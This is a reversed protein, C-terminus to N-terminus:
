AIIVVDAANAPLTIRIPFVVYHHSPFFLQIWSPLDHIFDNNVFFFAYATRQTNVVARITAKMHLVALSMGIICTANLASV